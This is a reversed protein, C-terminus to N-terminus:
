NKSHTLMSFGGKAMINNQTRLRLQNAAPMKMWHGNVKRFIKVNLGFKEKFDKEVQKVTYWSKIDLDGENDNNKIEGIRTDPSALYKESM